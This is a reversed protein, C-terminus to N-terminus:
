CFEVLASRHNETHLFIYNTEPTNGDVFEMPVLREGRIVLCAYGLDSFYRILDNPHYGFRGAWKRLMETFIAPRHDALLKRAGKFVLFEAGEVDCKIFCPVFGGQSIFDDVTTVSCTVLRSDDGDPASSIFSAGSHEPCVSFVLEGSSDSLGMMLANIKSVGNLELNRKLYTYALPVPEFAVGELGPFYKSLALSYFGANAGIDFMRVNSGGLHAVLRRVFNIEEFEFAGFNLAEIPAIRQDGPPCIMNIKPDLFEAVVENRYIHISSVNTEELLKSYAFLQQHIENMQVIFDAKSLGGTKHAERVSQISHM